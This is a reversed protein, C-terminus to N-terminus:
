RVKAIVYDAAPNSVFYGLEEFRKRCEMVISFKDLNGASVVHHDFHYGSVEFDFATRGKEILDQEMISEYKKFLADVFNIIEQHKAEQEAKYDASNKEIKAQIAAKIETNSKMIAGQTLRATVV